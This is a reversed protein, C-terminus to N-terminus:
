KVNYIYILLVKVCFINFKWSFLFSFVPLTNPQSSKNRNFVSIPNVQPKNITVSFELPIPSRPQKFDFLMETPIVSHVDKEKSKGSSLQDSSM